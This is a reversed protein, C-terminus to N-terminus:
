EDGKKLLRYFFNGPTFRYYFLLKKFNSAKGMLLYRFGNAKLEFTSM